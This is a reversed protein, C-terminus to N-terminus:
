DIGCRSKLFPYRKRKLIREVNLEVLDFAMQQEDQTLEDFWSKQAPTESGEECSSAATVGPSTHLAELAKNVASLDPVVSVPNARRYETATATYATSGIVPIGEIRQQPGVHTELNSIV